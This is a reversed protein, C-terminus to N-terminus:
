EFKRITQKHKLFNRGSSFSFRPITTQKTYSNVDDNYSHFLELYIQNHETFFFQIVM